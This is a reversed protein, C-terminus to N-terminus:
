PADIPGSRRLPVGSGQVYSDSAGLLAHRTSRTLGLDKRTLDPGQCPGPVLLIRAHTPIRHRFMDLGQGVSGAWASVRQQRTAQPEHCLGVPRAQRLTWVATYGRCKNRLPRAAQWWASPRRAREANLTDQGIRQCIVDPDDLLRGAQSTQQRVTRGHRAACQVQRPGYNPTGEFSRIRLQYGGDARLQLPRIPAILDPILGNSPSSWAEDLGLRPCPCGVRSSKRRARPGGEAAFM